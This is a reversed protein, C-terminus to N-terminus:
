APNKDPITINGREKEHQSSDKKELLYNISILLWGIWFLYVGIHFRDKLWRHTTSDHFDSWSLYLGTLALLIMLVQFLKAKGEKLKKRILGQLLLFVMWIIFVLSAGKWWTKLFRYQKYFVDMGLRGVLSPHSMLYGSVCALIFLFLVLVLQKKVGNKCCIFL